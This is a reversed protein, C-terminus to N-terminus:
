SRPRAPAERPGADKQSLIVDHGSFGLVGLWLDWGEGSVKLDPNHRGASASRYYEYEPSHLGLRDNSREFRVLNFIDIGSPSIDFRPGLGFGVSFTHWKQYTERGVVVPLNMISGYRYVTLIIKSDPKAGDVIRLLQDVTELKKHNIRFILDGERIGAKMIPTGNYVRTVLVASKQQRKISNPLAPIVGDTNSLNDNPRFYNSCHEDIFSTDAKVYKGGIWGRQLTVKTSACSTLIFLCGALTAALNWKRM